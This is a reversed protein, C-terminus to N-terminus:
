QPEHISETLAELVSREIDKCLVHLKAPCRSQALDGIARLEDTDASADIHRLFLRRFAPDRETYQSAQILSDWDSALTHVVAETWGEAIGGDDCHGYKEFAEHISPWSTLSDVGVQAARAEASTCERAEVRWAFALFLLCAAVASQQVPIRGSRAATFRRDISLKCKGCAAVPWPSAMM